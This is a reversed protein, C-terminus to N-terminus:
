MLELAWLTIGVCIKVPRFSKFRSWGKSLCGKGHILYLQISRRRGRDLRGSGSKLVGM